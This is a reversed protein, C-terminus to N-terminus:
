TVYSAFFLIYHTPAAARIFKEEKRILSLASAHIQHCRLVFFSREKKKRRTRNVFHTPLSLITTPIDNLFFPNCPKHHFKDCSLNYCFKWYYYFIGPKISIM